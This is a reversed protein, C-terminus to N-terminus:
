GGANKKCMYAFPCGPCNEPKAAFDEEKKKEAIEGCVQLIEQRYDRDPLARESLDRLYHLAAKAVKVSTEGRLRLLQELAMRYLALQWAYGRPIDEGQSPDPRPKQLPDQSRSQPPQLSSQQSSQQLPQQSPKQPPKGSKYDIIELQGDEGEAVADIVGTVTYTYKGLDRM